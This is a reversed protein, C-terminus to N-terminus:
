PNTDNNEGDGQSNGGEEGSDSGGGSCEAQSDYGDLVHLQPTPPEINERFSEWLLETDDLKKNNYVEEAPEMYQANRQTMFSVFKEKEAQEKEKYMYYETDYAFPYLSIYTEAM